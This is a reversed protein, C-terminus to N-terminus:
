REGTANLRALLERRSHVGAKAFVSKLHDQVTHRSIFLRRTLSRTDLGAALLTVVERERPSAGPAASSSSPRRPRRRACPSPSRHRPPERRAAGRRDHGLQRGRDPVLAHAPARCRGERADRRSLRRTAPDGRVGRLASRRAVGRDLGPRGGDLQGTAARPRPRARRASRRPRALLPVPPSAAACSPPSAPASGPWCSWMATTSAVITATATGSSGGGALRAPRPLGVRRRRRHRRSAHGRGRPSSASTAAPRPLSAGPPCQAAPWSTKRAVDRGLVRAEARGLSARGTTMSPWAPWPYLTAPDASPWCWRDFGIVRRLDAISERQISECDITSTCLREIAGPLAEARRRHGRPLAIARPRGRSIGVQQSQPRGDAVDVAPRRDGVLPASSSWCTSRSRFGVASAGGRAARATARATTAPVADRLRPAPGECASRNRAISRARIASRTSASVAAAPGTHRAVEREDVRGPLHQRLM